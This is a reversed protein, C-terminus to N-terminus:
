IHNFISFYLLHFLLLACLVYRTSHTNCNVRSSETWGKLHQIRDPSSASAQQHTDRADRPDDHGWRLGQGLEKYIPGNRGTYAPGARSGGSDPILITSM